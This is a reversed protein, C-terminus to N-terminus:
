NLCEGRERRPNSHFNRRPAVLSKGVKFCTSEIQGQVYFAVQWLVKVEAREEFLLIGAENPLTMRQELRQPSVSAQIWTQGGGIWLDHQQIRHTIPQLAVINKCTEAV